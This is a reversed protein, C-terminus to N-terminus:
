DGRMSVALLLRALGILMAGLSLLPPNM